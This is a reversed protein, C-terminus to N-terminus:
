KILGLKMGSFSATYFCNECTVLLIPYVEGAKPQMYEVDLIGLYKIDPDIGWSSGGCMPCKFSTKERLHKEIFEMQEKSFTM